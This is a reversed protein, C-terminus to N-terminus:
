QFLDFYRAAAFIQPNLDVNVIASTPLFSSDSLRRRLGPGPDQPPDTETLNFNGTSFAFAGNAVLGNARQGDGGLFTDVWPSADVARDVSWDWYPLDVSPDIVQLDREFRVILERHWPLFLETNHIGQWFLERHWAVYRDYGGNAKLQLVANIFRQQEDNSLSAQNKRIGM